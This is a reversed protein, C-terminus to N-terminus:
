RPSTIAKPKINASMSRVFDERDQVSSFASIPIRAYGRDEFDLYVCAKDETVRTLGSLAFSIRTGANESTFYGDSVECNWTESDPQSALYRAAMKQSVFVFMKQMLWFLFGSYLVMGVVREPVGIIWDAGIFFAAVFPILLLFQLWLPMIKKCMKRQVQVRFAVTESAPMKYTYRM